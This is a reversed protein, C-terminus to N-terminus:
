FCQRVGSLTQKIFPFELLEDASPRRLGTPDDPRRLSASLFDTADGDNHISEPWHMLIHVGEYCSRCFQNGHCTFCVVNAPVNQCASCISLGTVDGFDHPADAPRACLTSGRLGNVIALMFMGISGANIKLGAYPKEGTALEILCCGVAWVDGLTEDWGHVNGLLRPDYVEPAIYAPTGPSM